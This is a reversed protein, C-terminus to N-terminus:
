EQSLLTKAWGIITAAPPTGAAVKTAGDYGLAQFQTVTLKTGGCQVTVKGDPAYVTNNSVMMGDDFLQKSTPTNDLCKAGRIGQIALYPDGSNGLVCVNDHYGEAYGKPPLLQAM